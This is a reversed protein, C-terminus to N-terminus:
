GVALMKPSNRIGSTQNLLWLLVNVEEKTFHELFRNGTEDLERALDENLQTQMKRIEENMQNTTSENNMLNPGSLKLLPM